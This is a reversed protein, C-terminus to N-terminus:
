RWRWILHGPRPSPPRATQSIHRSPTSNFALHPTFKTKVSARMGAKEGKDRRLRAFASPSFSFREGDRGFIQSQIPRATTSCDLSLCLANGRRPSCHCRSHRTLSTTCVLIVSSESPGRSHGCSWDCRTVPPSSNPNNQHTLINPRAAASGAARSVAASRGCRPQLM